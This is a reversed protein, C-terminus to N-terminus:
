EAILRLQDVGTNNKRLNCLMHTLQVNKAEHTGGKSLPLIHDLSPSMPDPWKKKMNVKKGCWQCTYNDRAYIVERDISAVFADSTLARRLSSRERKREPHAGYYVRDRERAAELNAARRARRSENYAKGMDRRRVYNGCKLSCWRGHQADSRDVFVQGCNDCTKDVAQTNGM